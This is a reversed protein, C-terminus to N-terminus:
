RVKSVCGNDSILPFSHSSDKVNTRDHTQQLTQYKLGDSRGDASQRHETHELRATYILDVGCDTSVSTWDKVDVPTRVIVQDDGAAGLVAGDHYPCPEWPM